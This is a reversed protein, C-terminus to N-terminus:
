APQHWGRSPTWRHLVDQVVIGTGILQDIERAAEAPSWRQQEFILIGAHEPFPSVRWMTAWHQWAIHLEQFDNDSTLLVWGRQAAHM